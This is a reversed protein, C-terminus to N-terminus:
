NKVDKRIANYKNILEGNHHLRKDKSSWMLTDVDTPSLHLYLPKDIYQPKIHDKDYNGNGAIQELLPSTFAWGEYVHLYYHEVFQEGLNDKYKGDATIIYIDDMDYYGKRTEKFLNNYQYDTIVFLMGGSNLHQFSLGNPNNVEDSDNQCSFLGFAL